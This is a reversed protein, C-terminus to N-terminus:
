EDAGGAAHRVSDDTPGARYDIGNPPSPRSQPARQLLLCVAVLLACTLPRAVAAQLRFISPLSASASGPM